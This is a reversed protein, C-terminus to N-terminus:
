NCTLQANDVEPRSMYSETRVPDIYQQIYTAHSYCNNRSANQKPLTWQHDIPIIWGDKRMLTINGLQDMVM